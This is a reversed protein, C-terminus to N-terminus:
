NLKYSMEAKYYSLKSRCWEHEAKLNTHMKDLRDVLHQEESCMSDVLANVAKATIFPTKNMIEILGQMIETKKAKRTINKAEALMQEVRTLYVQVMDGWEIVSQPDSPRTELLWNEIMEVEEKM